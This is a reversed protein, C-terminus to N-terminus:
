SVVNQPRGRLFAQQNEAAAAILRERGARTAWAIHPTVLCRPHNLLEHGVRPPEESLVDLAAGSLQGQRLAASLAAEDILGGRATNILLATKKMMELQAKSILHRTRTTLPCHLSVIDAQMLLGELSLWEIAVDELQVSHMSPQHAALVHMGLCAAARAVRRGIKGMGVIGIKLGALEILPAVRFSFYPSKEWAGDQVAAAHRASQNTLELILALTHQVVSSTGYEPVNCVVVGQTRAEELDVANTSTALLGIYKLKKLCRLQQRGLFERQTLLCDAHVAHQVVKAGSKDHVEFQGLEQLAQWSLDGPNITYGDLLVIRTVPKPAQKGSLISSM